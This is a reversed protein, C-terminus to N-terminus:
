LNTNKNAERAAQLRCKVLEPPCLVLSALIAAGSGALGNESPTLQSVDSKNVLNLVGKQCQGYSFFM